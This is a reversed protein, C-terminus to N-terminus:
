IIFYSSTFSSYCLTAHNRRRKIKTKQPHSPGPIQMAEIQTRRNPSVGLRSSADNRLRRERYSVLLLKYLM